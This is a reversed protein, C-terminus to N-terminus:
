HYDSFSLYKISSIDIILKINKRELVKTSLASFIGARLVSIAAKPLAYNM